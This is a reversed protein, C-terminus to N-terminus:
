PQRHWLGADACRAARAKLHSVYAPTKSALGDPRDFIAYLAACEAPTEDPLGFTSEQAPSDNSVPLTFRVIALVMMLVFLGVTVPTSGMLRQMRTQEPVPRYAAASPALRRHKERLYDSLADFAARWADLTGSSVYLTILAPFRARLEAVQPWYPALSADVGGQARDFWAIWGARRDVPLLRWQAQQSLVSEVWAGRRGLQAAHGIEQWHFLATSADFLTARHRVVEDHLLDILHEEFQGPADIYQMRLATVTAELREPVDCSPLTRLADVFAAVLGAAVERPNGPEPPAVDADVEDPPAEGTESAVPGDPRELVWTRAADYAERLRAFAQPDTAPDITKLRQAYARRVATEDAYGSLGLLQLFHPSAM